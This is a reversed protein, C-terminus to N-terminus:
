CSSMEHGHSPFLKIADAFRCRLHVSLGQCTKTNICETTACTNHLKTHLVSFLIKHSPACDQKLQHTSCARGEAPAYPPTKNKGDAGSPNHLKCSHLYINDRTERKTTPVPRNQTTRKGATAIELADFAHCKQGSDRAMRTAADSSMSLTWVFYAFRWSRDSYLMRPFCETKPTADTRRFVSTCLPRMCLMCSWPRQQLQTVCNIM